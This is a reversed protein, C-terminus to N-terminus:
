SCTALTLNIHRSLIPEGKFRHAKFFIPMYTNLTVTAFGFSGLDFAIWSWQPTTFATEAAHAMICGTM